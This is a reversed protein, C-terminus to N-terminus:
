VELSKVMELDKELSKIKRQTTEIESTTLNHICTLRNHAQQLDIEITMLDWDKQQAPSRQLDSKKTSPLSRNTSPLQSNM